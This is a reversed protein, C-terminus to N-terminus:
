APAVSVVEKGQPLRLFNEFLSEPQNCAKWTFFSRVISHSYVENENAVIRGIRVDLVKLMAKMADKM